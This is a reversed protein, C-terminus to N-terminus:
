HRRRGFTDNNNKPRAENVNISQAHLMSNNLKEIAKEASLQDPMDVFGFGRSRGNYIDKIIKVSRIEGFPSFLDELQKETTTDGLNGVFINM